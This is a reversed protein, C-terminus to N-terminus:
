APSARSINAPTPRTTSSFSSSCIEEAGPGHLLRDGSRQRGDYRGCRRGAAGCRVCRLGDACGDQRAHTPRADHWQRYVWHGGQTAMKLADTVLNALITGAAIDTFTNPLDQPAIALPQDISYGRSAFVATTVSKKLKDIEEAIVRDGAISDDIPYLRYSDVKLKDGDVSIVLEGLNKGELGTQVVPTRDNVM